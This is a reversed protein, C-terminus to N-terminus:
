NTSRSKRVSEAARRWHAAQAPQGLSELITAAEDMLQADQPAAFRRRNVELLRRQLESLRQHERVHQEAAASNGLRLLTQSLRYHAEAHFPAARLCWEFDQQAETLQDLEALVTGRLLHAPLNKTETALVDDLLQRAGSRDGNARRLQALRLQDEIKPSSSQITEQILPDAEAFQGLDLLLQSLERRITRGIDQSVSSNALATRYAVVADTLRGRAQEVLGIVRWCAAQSGALGRLEDVLKAVDDDPLMSAKDPLVLTLMRGRDRPLKLAASMALDALLTHDAVQAEEILACWAATECEEPHQVQSFAGLAEIINRMQLQARCRVLWARSTMSTGAVLAEEALADAQTPHQTLLSEAQRVWRDPATIWWLGGAAAILLMGGAITLKRRWHSNTPPALDIPRNDRSM